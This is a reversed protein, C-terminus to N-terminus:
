ENGWKSCIDKNISDSSSIMIVNEGICNELEDVTKQEKKYMRDNIEIWIM